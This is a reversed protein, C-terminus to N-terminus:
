FMFLVLLVLCGHMGPDDSTEWTLLMRFVYQQVRQHPDLLQFQAFRAETSIVILYGRPIIFMDLITIPFYCFNKKPPPLNNSHFMTVHQFTAWPTAHKHCEHICELWGKDTNQRISRIGIKDLIPMTWEIQILVCLRVNQCDQTNMGNETFELYVPMRIKAPQFHSKGLSPQPFAPFLFVHETRFWDM